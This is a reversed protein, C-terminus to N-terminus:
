MLLSVLYGLVLFKASAGKSRVTEMSGYNTNPLLLFRFEMKNKTLTGTKDSFIYDILGLDEHITSVNVKARKNIDASYLSVDLSIFIAQAFKVMEGTVTLSIPVMLALLIMWSFFAYFSAVTNDWVTM